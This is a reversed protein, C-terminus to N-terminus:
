TGPLYRHTIALLFNILVLITVVKALRTIKAANKELEATLATDNELNNEIGVRLKKGIPIINSGVIFIIVLTIFQKTTLWHNGDFQFFSYGPILIVMVIGTILVGSMGVMGTFNIMKLWAFILKKHGSKDKNKSIFDSLFFNAPIDALWIVASLIHLFILVPYLQM